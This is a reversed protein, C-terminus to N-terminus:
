EAARSSRRELNRGPCIDWDYAQSVLGRCCDGAGSGSGSGAAAEALSLHSRALTALPRWTPGSCVLRWVLFSGLTRYQGLFSGLYPVTSVSRPNIQWALNSRSAGLTSM